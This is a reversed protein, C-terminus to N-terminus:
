GGQKKIQPFFWYGYCANCIKVCTGGIVYETHKKVTKEKKCHGCTPKDLKIYRVTSLGINDM